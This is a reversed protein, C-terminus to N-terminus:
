GRKKIVITEPYVTDWGDFTEETIDLDFEVLNGEEDELLVEEIEDHETLYGVLDCLNM